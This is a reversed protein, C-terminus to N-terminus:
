KYKTNSPNYVKKQFQLTSYKNNKQKEKTRESTRLWEM